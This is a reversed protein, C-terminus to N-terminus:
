QKNWEEGLKSDCYRELESVENLIHSEEKGGNAVHEDFNQGESEYMYHIINDLMEIQKGNLILTRNTDM